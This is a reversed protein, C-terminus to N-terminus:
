DLKLDEGEIDFDDEGEDEGLAAKLARGYGILATQLAATRMGAQKIENATWQYSVLQTKTEDSMDDTEYDKEDITVIAMNNDIGRDLRM